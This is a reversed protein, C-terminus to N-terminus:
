PPHPRLHVSSAGWYDPNVEAMSRAMMDPKMTHGHTSGVYCRGFLRWYFDFDRGEIDIKVCPNGAFFMAVAVTL